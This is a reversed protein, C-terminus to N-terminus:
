LVSNEAAEVCSRERHLLNIRDDINQLKIRKYGELFQNNSGESYATTALLMAITALVTTKM